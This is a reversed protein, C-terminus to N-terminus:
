VTESSNHWASLKVNFWEVCWSLPNRGLRSTPGKRDMSSYALGIGIFNISSLRVEWYHRGISFGKMALVQSCVAFREPMDPYNVHDDSVSAKTFGDSLV